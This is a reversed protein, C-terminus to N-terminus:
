FQIIKTKYKLATTFFKLTQRDNLYPQGYSRRPSTKLTKGLYMFSVDGLHSHISLYKSLM